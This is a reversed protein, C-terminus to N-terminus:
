RTPTDHTAAADEEADLMAFLRAASATLEEDTIEGYDALPPHRQTILDSFERQEAASLREYAHLLHATATSMSAVYGARHGGALTRGPPRSATM